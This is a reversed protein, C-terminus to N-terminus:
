NSKKTLKLNYQLTLTGFIRTKIIKEGELNQYDKLFNSSGVGIGLGISFSKPLLLDLGGQATLYTTQSQAKARHWFDPLSVYYGDEIVHRWEIFCQIALKKSPTIRKKLFNLKAFYGYGLVPELTQFTNKHFAYTGIFGLTIEKFQYGIKPHFFLTSYRLKTFYPSTIFPSYTEISGDTYLGIYISTENQAKLTNLNLLFLILLSLLKNKM